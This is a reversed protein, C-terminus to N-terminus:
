YEFEDGNLFRWEPNVENVLAEKKKMSMKRIEKERDLVEFVDRYKEWYVLYVCRFEDLDALANTELKLYDVEVNLSGATGVKLRTKNKDTAIYVYYSDDLTMFLERKKSKEIVLFV